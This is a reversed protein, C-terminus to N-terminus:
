IFKFDVRRNRQKGESTNNSDVPQKEGKFDFELRDSSLGRQVFYQVIMEARRRSLDDNYSDSGDADTHGTVIVRLDSHGKIVKILRNLFDYHEPRIFSEDYDFYIPEFKFNDREKKRIEPANLGEKLDKILQTFWLQSLENKEEEAFNFNSRYLTLKGIVRKCDTSIFDGELYGTEENFLLKADFRCWKIGNNQKSKQIAIQQIEVINNKISGKIKKVAYNDTDYVEERTQGSISKNDGNINLYLLTADEVKQGARQVIGLWTGNYNSQAILVCTSFVSFLIALFLRM